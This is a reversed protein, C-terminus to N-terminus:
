LSPSLSISSLLLLLNSWSLVGPNLPALERTCTEPASTGTINVFLGRSWAWCELCTLETVGREDRPKRWTPFGADGKSHCCHGMRPLHTLAKESPHLNWERNRVGWLILVGMPHSWLTRQRTTQFPQYCRQEARRSVPEEDGICPQNYLRFDWLLLTLMQEEEKRGRERRWIRLVEPVAKNQLEEPIFFPPQQRQRLHWSFRRAGTVYIFFPSEGQLSAPNPWAFSVKSM